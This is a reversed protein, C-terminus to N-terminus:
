LVCLFCSSPLNNKCNGSIAKWAAIGGSQKYAFWAVAIVVSIFFYQLLLFFVCKNTAAGQDCSVQGPRDELEL